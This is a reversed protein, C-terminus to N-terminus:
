FEFQSVVGRDHIGQGIRRHTRPKNIEPLVNRRALLLGWLREAGLRGIPSTRAHIM